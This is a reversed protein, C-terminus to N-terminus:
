GVFNGYQPIGGIMMEPVAGQGALYIEANFVIQVAYLQSPYRLVEQWFHEFHDWNEYILPEFLTPEIYNFFGVPTGGVATSQVFSGIGGYANEKLTPPPVDMSSVGVVKWMIGGDKFTAGIEANTLGWQTFPTGWYTGDPNTGGGTTGANQAEISIIRIANLALFTATAAYFTQPLWPSATTNLQVRYQDKDADM